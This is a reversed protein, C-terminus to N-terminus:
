MISRFSTKLRAVEFVFGSAADWEMFTSQLAALDWPSDIRLLSLTESAGSNAAVQAERHDPSMGLLRHHSIGVDSDVLWRSIGPGPNVVVQRSPFSRLAKFFRWERSQDLQGEPQGQSPEPQGEGEDEEMDLLVAGPKVDPEPM